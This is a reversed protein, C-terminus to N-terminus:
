DCTEFSDRRVANRKEHPANWAAITEERTVELIAKQRHTEGCAPAIGPTEESTVKNRGLSATLGLRRGLPIARM